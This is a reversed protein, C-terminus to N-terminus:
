NSEDESYADPLKRLTASITALVPLDEKAIDLTLTPICGSADVELRYPLDDRPLVLTVDDCVVDRLREFAEQQEPGWAFPINKGTLPLTGHM